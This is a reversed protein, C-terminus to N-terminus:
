ILYGEGATIAWDYSNDVQLIHSTDFHQFTQVTDILITTAGVVSITEKDTVLSHAINDSILRNYNLSGLFATLSGGRVDSFNVNINGNGTETTGDITVQKSITISSKVITPFKIINTPLAETTNAFVINSNEVNFNEFVYTNAEPLNITRFASQNGWTIRLSKDNNLTGHVTILLRYIGKLPNKVVVGSDKTIIDYYIIAPDSNYPKLVIQGINTALDSMTSDVFISLPTTLSVRVSAIITVLSFSSAGLNDTASLKFVYTGQTLGTVTTSLNSPTAILSANPGSVQTWLISAITGSPSTAVGTLTLVDDIFTGRNVGANVNPPLNTNIPIPNDIFEVRFNNINTPLTDLPTNLLSEVVSFGSNATTRKLEVRSGSQKKYSTIVDVRIILALSTILLSLDTLQNASQLAPPLTLQQQPLLNLSPSQYYPVDLVLNSPEVKINKLAISQTSSNLFQVQITNVTIVTPNDPTCTVLDIVPAIYDPDTPLNPKTNGTSLGTDTYVEVLTNYNKKGTNSM